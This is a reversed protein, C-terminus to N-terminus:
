AAPPCLKQCLDFSPLGTHELRDIALQDGRFKENMKDPHNKVRPEYLFELHDLFLIVPDHDINYKGIFFLEGKLPRMDLFSNALDHVLAAPYLPLEDVVDRKGFAPFVEIRDTFYVSLLTNHFM